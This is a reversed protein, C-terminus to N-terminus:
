VRDERREPRGGAPSLADATLFLLLEIARVNSMGEDAMMKKFSQVPKMDMQAAVFLLYRLYAGRTNVGVHSMLGFHRAVKSDWIPFVKPNIFHFTKSTGIWSRNIPAKQFADTAIFAYAADLSKVDKVSRILAQESVFEGLEVHDLITPMWGYALHAIAALPYTIDSHSIVTAADCLAGHFRTYQDKIRLQPNKKFTALCHELDPHRRFPRM